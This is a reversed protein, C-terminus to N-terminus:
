RAWVIFSKAKSRILMARSADRDCEDYATVCCETLPIQRSSNYFGVGPIQQGGYLIKDSFLWFTFEKVERRHVDLVCVCLSLCIYTIMIIILVMNCLPHSASM